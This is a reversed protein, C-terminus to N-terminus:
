TYPTKEKPKRHCRKPQPNLEWRQGPNMSIAHKGQGQPSEELYEMYEGLGHTPPQNADRVHGYHSFSHSQARRHTPVRDLIDVAKNRIDRQIYALNGTVRHLIHPVSM